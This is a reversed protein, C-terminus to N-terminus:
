RIKLCPKENFWIENSWHNWWFIKLTDFSYLCIKNYLITILNIKVDQKRVCSLIWHRIELCYLINWYNDHNRIRCFQSIDRVLISVHFHFFYLVHFIRLNIWRVPIWPLIAIFSECNRYCSWYQFTEDHFFTFMLKHFVVGFYWNYIIYSWKVDPSWFTRNRKSKKIWLGKPSKKDICQDFKMIKVTNYNKDLINQTPNVRKTTLRLLADYSSACEDLRDSIYLFLNYENQKLFITFFWPLNLLSNIRCTSILKWHKRAYALQQLIEKQLKNHQRKNDHIHFHLVAHLTEFKQPLNFSKKFNKINLTCFNYSFKVPFFIRIM